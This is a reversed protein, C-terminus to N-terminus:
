PKGLKNKAWQLAAGEGGVKLRDFFSILDQESMNQLMSEASRGLASLSEIRAGVQNLQDQVTLGNDSPAAPDMKGLMQRQLALGFCVDAIDLGSASVQQGLKLGVQLTAQASAEDGAQRYLNSLEGRGDRLGKMGALQPLSTNDFAELKAEAPTYGASLFAEEASQIQDAMYDQYKPKAAAAMLEEVAQDSQGSRLYESASLCNALANDPASQKFADLWQRRLEPSSNNDRRTDAWGAFSVRPDNPYNAEAERLLAPDHTLHFATLLSDRSRRNQALYNKVQARTLTPEKGAGNRVFANSLPAAIPVAEAPSASAPMRPAPLRPVLARTALGPRVAEEPPAPSPRGRRSHDWVGWGMASLGAVTIIRIIQKM